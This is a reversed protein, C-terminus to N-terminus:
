EKKEWLKCYYDENLLYAGIWSSSCDHKLHSIFQENFCTGDNNYEKKWWRCNDCRVKQQLQKILGIADSIGVDYGLKQSPSLGKKIKKCRELEEILKTLM